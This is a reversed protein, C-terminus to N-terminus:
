FGIFNTMLTKIRYNEAKGQITSYTENIRILDQTKIEYSERSFYKLCNGYVELFSEM